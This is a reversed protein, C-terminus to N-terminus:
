FWFCFNAEIETLNQGCRRDYLYLPIEETQLFSSKLLNGTLPQFVYPSLDPAPAIICSAFPRPLICGL